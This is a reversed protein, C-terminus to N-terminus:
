PRGARKRSRKDKRPPKNAQAYIVDALTRERREEQPVVEPPVVVNEVVTGDPHFLCGFALYYVVKGTAMEFFTSGGDSYAKLVGTNQEYIGWGRANSGPYLPAFYVNHNTMASKALGRAPRPRIPSTRNKKVMARVLRLAGVRDINNYATMTGIATECATAALVAFEDATLTNAM